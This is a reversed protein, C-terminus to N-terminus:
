LSQSTERFRRTPEGHRQAVRMENMGVGAADEGAEL